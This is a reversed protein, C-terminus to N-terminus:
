QAGSIESMCTMLTEKDSYQTKSTCAINLHKYSAQTFTHIYTLPNTEHGPMSPGTQSKRQAKRSDM